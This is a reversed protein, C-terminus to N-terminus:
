APWSKWDRQGGESCQQIGRIARRGVCSTKDNVSKGNINPTGTKYCYLGLDGFLVFLREGDATPTEAAYSTKPHRPIVQRGAHAEHKWPQKGIKMDFCYVIWHHMGRAPDRVGQGLYLGGEPKTNEEDAVVSSVFMRDGVMIPVGWGQGPVDAVWAVNETKSWREPLDPHNPAVGTADAGRFRTLNDASSTSCSFLFSVSLFACTFGYEFSRFQPFNM